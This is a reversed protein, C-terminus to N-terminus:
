NYLNVLTEFPLYKRVMRLGAIARSVKKALIEIHEDWNLKSDLTLGLSKVSSVQSLKKDGLRLNCPKILNRIRNESGIVMFETRNLNITLKNAILWKRINELERNALIELDDLTEASVTINTDDWKCFLM